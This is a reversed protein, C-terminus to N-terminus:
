IDVVVAGDEERVAHVTITDGEACRGDTATRNM